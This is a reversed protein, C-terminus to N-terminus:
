RGHHLALLVYLAAMSLYIWLPNLNM